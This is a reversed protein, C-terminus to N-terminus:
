HVKIDPTFDLYLHLIAMATLILEMSTHEDRLSHSQHTPVQDVALHLRRTDNVLPNM